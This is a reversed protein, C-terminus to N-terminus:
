QRSLEPLVTKFTFNKNEPSTTGIGVRNESGDLAMITTDIGGDNIRFIIDKIAPPMVLLQMM